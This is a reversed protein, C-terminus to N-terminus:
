KRKVHVTGEESFFIKWKRTIDLKASLPLLFETYRSKWVSDVATFTSRFLENPNISVHNFIRKHKIQM